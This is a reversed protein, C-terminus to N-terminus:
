TTAHSLLPCSKPVVLPIYVWRPGTVPLVNLKLTSAMSSGVRSPISVMMAVSDFSVTTVPVAVRPVALMVVLMVSVSVAFTDDIDFTIAAGTDNQQSLTVRYVIDVLGNENGQTTVSLVANATDTETINTSTTVGATYEVFREPALSSDGDHSWATREGSGEVFIM